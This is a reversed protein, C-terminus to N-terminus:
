VIRKADSGFYKNIESELRDAEPFNFKLDERVEFGKCLVGDQKKHQFSIPITKSHFSCNATNEKLEFNLCGRCTPLIQSGEHCFKTHPCMKCVFYSPNESIKEPIEKLHAIESIRNIYMGAQAEDLDIIEQYIEDTNKNVCLYIAKKIDLAKMYIQVQIYHSLFAEKVNSKSLKSFYKQASSKVELVYKTGNSELIGDINGRIVGIEIRRQADTVKWENLKNIYSIVRSEYINGTEFIRLKRGDFKELKVNRFDLWLKRKCDHAASSPHMGTNLRPKFELEICKDIQGKIDIM